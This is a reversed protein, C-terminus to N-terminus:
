LIVTYYLYLVLIPILPAPNSGAIIFVAKCVAAKSREAVRKFFSKIM